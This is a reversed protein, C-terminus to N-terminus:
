RTKLYIGPTMVSLESTKYDKINRTIIISVDKENDAAFNQLADEFDKFGSHLANLVTQKNIQAVEIINLLKKLSEIVKEHRATKRLIYYVNSIMVPTVFGQIEGKECLSLLQTADNSFPKRDFFFDLVVDTDILVKQAM